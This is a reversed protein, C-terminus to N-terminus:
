NADELEGKNDIQDVQDISLEEINGYEEDLERVREDLEPGTLTPHWIKLAEKTTALLSQKAKIARDLRENESEIPKPLEYEVKVYVDKSMPPLDKVIGRSLWNNHVNSMMKWFRNECEELVVAQTKLAQMTDMEKIMLSVGSLSNDTRARGASSVKIGKTELWADLQVMVNEIVKSTDVEPKIQGIQPTREADSKFVWFVNPNRELNESDVDIGYIISYSMYKLADNSHTFMLPILKGIQLLDTDSTPLLQYDSVNGYTSPIVGYINIGNNKEMYEPVLEGDENIALFETDSYLFYVNLVKDGFSQKGMYKIVVTPVNPEIPDDSWVLFQHSPIVRIKPKGLSSIYPEILSMKTSNIFYNFNNMFKNVNLNKVYWDIIEQDSESPKNNILATRKVEGSYLKTLKDTVKKIINIPSIGEAASEAAAKSSLQNELAKAVYTILDGELINFITENFDTLKQNAKIFQLISDIKSM